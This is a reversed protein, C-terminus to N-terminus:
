GTQEPWFKKSMEVKVPGLLCKTCRGNYRVKLEGEAAGYFEYDERFTRHKEPDVVPLEERLRDFEEPPVNGYKAYVEATAKDRGNEAEALCRPCIEWNSASV